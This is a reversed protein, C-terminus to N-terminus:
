SRRGSLAERTVRLLEESDIPKLLIEHIGLDLADICDQMSPYGTILILSLGGDLERLRRALEDGRIDPLKIDLFALSFKGREGREAMELAAAGTTSAMVPHGEGELIRKFTRLQLEDDDVILIPSEVM